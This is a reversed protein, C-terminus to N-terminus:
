FELAGYRHTKMSERYAAATLNKLSDLAEEIAAPDRKEGKVPTQALRELTEIKAALDTDGFVTNMVRTWEALRQLRVASPGKLYGLNGISDRVTSVAEYVVAHLEILGEKMPSLAEDMKRKAETLKLNDLERQIKAKHEEAERELRAKSQIAAVEERSKAQKIQEAEWAARNEEAEARRAEDLKRRAEVAARQEDLTSSALSLVAVEHRMHLKARLREPTPLLRELQDIMRDTFDDAVIGGTARARALADGVVARFDNVVTSEILPWNDDIAALAADLNAQAQEFEEVFSPWASFPVWRYSSTGLMTEMFSLRLSWHALADYAQEGSRLLPLRYKDPLLGAYPPRITISLNKPLEIGLAKWDLRKDLSKFGATHIRVFVGQDDITTLDLSLRTVGTTDIGQDHLNQEKPDLVETTM